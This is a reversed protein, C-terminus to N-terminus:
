QARPGRMREGKCGTVLWQVGDLNLTKQTGLFLPNTASSIVYKRQYTRNNSPLVYQVIIYRLNWFEPTGQKGRESVIANGLALANTQKQSITFKEGTDSTYEVIAQDFEGPFTM